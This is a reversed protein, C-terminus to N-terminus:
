LFYFFGNVIIHFSYEFYNIFSMSYNLLWMLITWLYLILYLEPKTCLYKFRHIGINLENFFLNCNNNAVFVFFWDFCSDFSIYISSSLFIEIAHNSVFLSYLRTRLMQHTIILNSVLDMIISLIEWEENKPFFKLLHFHLHGHKTMNTFLRTNSCCM